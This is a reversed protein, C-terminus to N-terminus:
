EEERSTRMYNRSRDSRNGIDNRCRNLEHRNLNVQNICQNKIKSANGSLSRTEQEVGYDELFEPPLEGIERLFDENFGHRSCVELFNMANIEKNELKKELMRITEDRSKRAKTPGTCSSM